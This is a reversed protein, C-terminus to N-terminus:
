EYSENPLNGRRFEPRVIAIKFEESTEKITEPLHYFLRVFYAV